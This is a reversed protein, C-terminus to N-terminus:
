VRLPILLPPLLMMNPTLVCLYGKPVPLHNVILTHPLISLYIMTLDVDRLVPYLQYMFSYYNNDVLFNHQLPVKLLDINLFIMYSATLDILGLPLIIGIDPVAQYINPLITTDLLSKVQNHNIIQHTSFCNVCIYAEAGYPSIILLWAGSLAIDVVTTTFNDSFTSPYPSLLSAGNHPPNYLFSYTDKTGQDPVYGSVLIFSKM